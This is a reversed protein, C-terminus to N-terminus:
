WVDEKRAPEVPADIVLEPGQAAIAPRQGRGNDPLTLRVREQAGDMATGAPTSATADPTYPWRTGDPDVIHREIRITWPQQERAPTPVPALQDLLVLARQERDLAQTFSKLGALGGTSKPGNVAAATFGAERLLEAQAVQRALRRVTLGATEATLGRETLIADVLGPVQKAREAKAHRGSLGVREASRNWPTFVNCAPCRGPREDADLLVGCTRKACHVADCERCRPGDLTAGCARCQRVDDVQALAQLVDGSM